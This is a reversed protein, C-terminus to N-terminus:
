ISIKAMPTSLVRGCKAGNTVSVYALWNVSDFIFPQATAAFATSTKNM